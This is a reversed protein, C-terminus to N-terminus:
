ARREVSLERVFGVEIGVWDGGSRWEWGVVLGDEVVGFDEDHMDVVACVLEDGHVVVGGYGGHVDVEVVAAFDVDDVFAGVGDGCMTWRCVPAKRM